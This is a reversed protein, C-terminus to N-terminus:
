LSTSPSDDQFFSPTNDQHLALIEFHKVKHMDIRELRSLKELSNFNPLMYLTYQHKELIDFLEERESSNLRKYCEVMLVPRQEILIGSITKLIEKDYGEADIKILAIESIRNTYKNELFQQLNKGKVDLQYFHNHNKTEIESLYGGNCFSPDSYNFIYEGDHETAAFCYAEINVKSINLRINEELVKFVYKNPELGIVLGKKGAALGMPITTDGTHTGIDIVLKGEVGLNKYFEINEKSLVVPEEKPHQWQAFSISGVGEIDHHTIITSYEVASANKQKIRARVEKLLRIM